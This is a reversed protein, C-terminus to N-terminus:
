RQVLTTRRARFRERAPAVLERVLATFDLGACQAGMPLLSTEKMGPLTNIELFHIQEDETVLFDIRGYDRCGCAAFAREAEVQARNAVAEPLPAPALYETLGKTYKSAYDYVGSKPAIEVVPLARYQRGRHSSPSM